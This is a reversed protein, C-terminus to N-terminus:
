QQSSGSTTLKITYGLAAALAATGATELTAMSLHAGVSLAQIVAGAAASYATVLLAHIINKQNQSLTM